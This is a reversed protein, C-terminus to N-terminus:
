YLGPVLKYPTQKSYRIWEDGFHRKLAEDERRTRAPIFTYLYLNYVVWAAMVACGLNSDSPGCEAFWSGPSMQMTLLGAAFVIWSMYSPHRVVSYPGTTILHHDDAISLRYTFLRGLRRFCWLRVGGGLVLLIWGIFFLPSLRLEPATSLPSIPVLRAIFTSPNKPAVLVFIECATSSWVVVQGIIPVWQVVTDMEDGKGFKSMFAAKAPPTPPSHVRHSVTAATFLLVVKIASIPDTM